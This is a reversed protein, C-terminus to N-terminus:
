AVGECAVWPCRWLGGWGGSHNGHVVTADFDCSGTYGNHGGYDKTTNLKLTAAQIVTGSYNYATSACYGSGLDTSRTVTISSDGQTGGRYLAPQGYGYSNWKGAQQNIWDVWGAHSTISSDDFYRQSSGTNKLCPSCPGSTGNNNNLQSGASATGVPVLALGLAVLSAVGVASLRMILSRM